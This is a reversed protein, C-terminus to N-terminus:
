HTNWPCVVLAANHFLPYGWRAASGIEGLSLAGAVQRAGARRRLDAIESCANEIGLHLRRGACYLLLLAGDEVPTRAGLDGILADVVKAREVTPAELLTLVSSAPVEGICFLSGDEELAVPIRVLVTGDARVVGFPFHVAHTYFNERDIEVGYQARALERYVDFAPRWDIQVIRNGQTATATTITDPMPYGHAVAAGESSPLLMALAGGQVFRTTDFLCAIPRFTESGANAGAYRVRDALRLYMEDLLTAVSPNLADCFLLLTRPADGALQPRLRAVLREATDAQRDVEPPANELAVFPMVDFPVLWAGQQVFRDDLVLAPFVAGALGLGHARCFAQVTAVHSAEAEPLLVVLGPSGGSARAAWEGLQETLTAEDVREVYRPAISMREEGTPSEARREKARIM